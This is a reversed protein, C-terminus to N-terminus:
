KVTGEHLYPVGRILGSGFITNTTFEIATTDLKMDNDSLPIDKYYKEFITIIKESDNPNLSKTEDLIKQAKVFAKQDHVSAFVIRVNTTKLHDRLSKLENRCYPCDPDTVITLLKDTKTKANITVFSSKPLSDFLAEINKGSSEKAIKELKAISSTMLDNDSKESFNYFRGVEWVSKGDKSTYLPFANGAEDQLIAIFVGPIGKFEDVSLVKVPAGILTGVTTELNKNITQANLSFCFLLSCLLLAKKM